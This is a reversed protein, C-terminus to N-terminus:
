SGVATIDINDLGWNDFSSGSHSVQMWRFLTAETQAGVPVAETITTWSTYLETDYLGIEVWNIGNDISYALVVDEGADANEGGNASTGFILDFRIQGGDSVNVGTTTLHRSGDRAVGGTFYLANGSGGFNANVSSSSGIESWQSNDIAPDFDDRIQSTGSGEFVDTLDISVSISDSQSPSGNDSVKVTLNFSPTTEYDLPASDIVTIQGKDDIAFAGSENGSEILYSLVQGPNPDTAVVTGVVMGKASNEAIAFAADTGNPAFNTNPGALSVNDLGWNDFSSGSHSVQRWRLQTAATQAAEPIAAIMSSWATYDETDYLALQTWNTGGNTSYELVVDEGADANEGGNSSSGFILDFTIFGGATLDIANTTTSRQGSGSFFLSHGSGGFNTNAVGNDIADWLSQDIEPDFDDAFEYPDPPLDPTDLVRIGSPTRVFLWDGDDTIELVQDYSFFSDASGIDEGIAFRNLESWSNTDYTIIEDSVDDVVYLLDDVPSFIAGEDLNALTHLPTLSADYLVLDNGVDVAVISGDRNVASVNRLFMGTTISGAFTDTAADYTFIPGSSINPETFTFFSRDASRQIRTNQRVEGGFGSGLSDTRATFTGTALDLERLPTWGSGGYDTTVFATGNAGVAIDWAGIEGFDLEYAVTSVENDSLDLLHVFGQGQGIVDEAIVLQSGDPTIDAGNLVNGVQIPNLLTQTTLDFRELDGDDTTIYLLNRTPDFVMDRHNTVPILFNSIPTPDPTFSYVDSTAGATSWVATDGSIQAYLDDVSNHTVQAVDTGNYYFIEWNGGVYSSWVLNDGSGDVRSSSNQGSSTATSTPTLVDNFTNNTIQITTSGDHRFLEWDNGDWESWVVNNDFFGHLWVTHASDAILTASNGDYRYIQSSIGNSYAKWAVENGSVYPTIGNNTLSATNVGDYLFVTNGSGQWVVNNGSIEPAVGYGSLQTTNAGDYLFVTNESNRWVVNNGSIGVDFISGQSTLQTTTNGDNFFVQWGNVYGLWTAGADSIQPSTISPVGLDPLITTTVGDFLVIDANSDKWVIYDGWIDPQSSAGDYTLQTIGM